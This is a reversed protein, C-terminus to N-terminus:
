SEQDSEGAPTGRDGERAPARMPLPTRPAMAVGGRDVILSAFWQEFPAAAQEDFAAQGSLVGRVFWRPGDVGIFRLPRVAESGDPARAPLRVRLESGFSGVGEEVVGGRASVDAALERRLDEWLGVSRPAAFASVELGATNTALLVRAVAGTDPQGQLTLQAGPLPPPLILAGLNLSGPAPERESLDYPGGWRSRAPASAVEEAGEQQFGEGQSREQPVSNTQPDVSREAEDHPRDRRRRFVPTM